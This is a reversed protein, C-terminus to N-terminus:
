GERRREAWAVAYRSAADPRLQWDQFSGIVQDFEKEEFLSHQLMEAKAGALVGLLNAVFVKFHEGGACSGFFIWTNRVPSAGAVHLLSILKRGVIPDNDLEIYTQMYANWLETFGPIEPYLRFVDHDDDALIICGEKKPARVMENAVNLPDPIHELVLRTHVVDFTEWEEERLLLKRADGQRFEM